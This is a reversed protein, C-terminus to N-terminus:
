APPADSEVDAGAHGAEAVASAYALQMNAVMQNFDRVADPPLTGALTGMLARLSDIALRAEALDRDETGLRRWGLQSVTLMTQALVDAVKLKRFEEELGRLLSEEDPAPGDGHEPV